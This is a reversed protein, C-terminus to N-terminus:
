KKSNREKERLAWRYYPSEVFGIEIMEKLFDAGAKPDSPGKVRYARYLDQYRTDLTKRAAKAANTWKDLTDQAVGVQNGLEALPFLKAMPLMSHTKDSEALVTAAIDAACESIQTRVKQMIDAYINELLVDRMNCYADTLAVIQQPTAKSGVARVNDFATRFAIATEARETRVALERHRMDGEFFRNQAIRKEMDAQWALVEEKTVPENSFLFASLRKPQTSAIIDLADKADALFDAADGLTFMERDVTDLKPQLEDWRASQILTQIDKVDNLFKVRRVVVADNSIASTQGVRVLDEAVDTPEPQLVTSLARYFSLDYRAREDSADDYPSHDFIPAVQVAGRPKALEAGLADLRMKLTAAFACLGALILLGLLLGRRPGRSPWSFPASTKMATAADGSSMYMGEFGGVNFLTNASVSLRHRKEGSGTVIDISEAAPFFEFLTEGAIAPNVCPKGDSANEAVVNRGAFVSDAVVKSGAYRWLMLNGTSAQDRELRFTHGAISCVLGPLLQMDPASKPGAVVPESLSSSALAWGDENRILAAVVESGPAVSECLEIKGDRRCVKIPKTRASLEETCVEKGDSGYIHLLEM